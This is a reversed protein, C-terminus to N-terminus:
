RRKLWEDLAYKQSILTEIKQENLFPSMAVVEEALAKAFNWSRQESNGAISVSGQHLLGEKGRKQAAGAIKLGQSTLLDFEVPNQFCSAGSSSKPPSLQIGDDEKQLASQLTKHIFCYSEGGKLRSLEFSKPIILSYTWDNRHDVLGGGTWRRVWQIEPFFEHAEEWRNFYGLSAWEGKWRYVRLLPQTVWALLWEDIAMTEPGARAVPDIWLHIEKLKMASTM